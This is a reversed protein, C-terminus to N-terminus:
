ISKRRYTRLRILANLEQQFEAQAILTQRGDNALGKSMFLTNSSDCKPETSVVAYILTTNRRCKREERTRPSSQLPHNSATALM